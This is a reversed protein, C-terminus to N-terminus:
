YDPDAPKAASMVAFYTMAAAVFDLASHLAESLIGLSQSWIGVVLKIGTLIIAAIVSSLAVGRKKM